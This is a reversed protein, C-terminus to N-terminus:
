ERWPVCRECCERKLLEEEDKVREDEEITELIKVAVILGRLEGATILM